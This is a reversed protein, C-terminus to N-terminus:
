INKMSKLRPHSKTIGISTKPEFRILDPNIQTANNSEIKRKMGAADEAGTSFLVVLRARPFAEDGRDGVCWILATGAPLMVVPWADPTTDGMQADLTPCLLTTTGSPLM